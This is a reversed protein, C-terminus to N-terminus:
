EDDSEESVEEIYHVTHTIDESDTEWHHLKILKTMSAKNCQEQIEPVTFNTRASLQVQRVEWRTIIRAQSIHYDGLLTHADVTHMFRRGTRIEHAYEYLRPFDAEDSNLWTSITGVDDDHCYAIFGAAIAAITGKRLAFSLGNTRNDHMTVLEEVLGEPIYNVMRKAGTTAFHITISTGSDVFRSYCIQKTTVNTELYAHYDHRSDKFITHAGHLIIYKIEEECKARTCLPGDHAEENLCSMCAPWEAAIYNKPAKM